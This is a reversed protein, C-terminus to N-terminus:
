QKQMKKRVRKLSKHLTVFEAVRREIERQKTVRIGNDSGTGGGVAENYERVVRRITAARQEAERELWAESKRLDKSVM